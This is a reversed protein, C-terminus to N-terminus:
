KKVSQNLICCFVTIKEVLNELFIGSLDNECKSNLFVSIVSFRLKECLFRELTYITLRPLVCFLIVMTASKNLFLMSILSNKM